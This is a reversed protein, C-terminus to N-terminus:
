LSNTETYTRFKDFYVKIFYAYVLVHIFYIPWIILFDNFVLFVISEFPVLLFFLLKNNWSDYDLTLAIYVSLGIQLVAIAIVENAQIIIIHLIFVFLILMMILYYVQKLTEIEQEPFYETPNLFRSESNALKKYIFRGVVFLVGFILIPIVLEFVIKLIEM